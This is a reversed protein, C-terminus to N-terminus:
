VVGDVQEVSLHRGSVNADTLVLDMEESSGVSITRDGVEYSRGVDPGDVVALEVPVDEDTAPLPVSFATSKRAVFSKTSAIEARPV